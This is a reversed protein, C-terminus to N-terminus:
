ESTAAQLRGLMTSACTMSAACGARWTLATSGDGVAEEWLTEEEMTVKRLRVDAPREVQLKSRPTFVVTATISKEASVAVLLIQLLDEYLISGVIVTAVETSQCRGFARCLLGQWDGLASAALVRM